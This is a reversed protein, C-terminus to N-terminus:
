AVIRILTWRRDVSFEISIRKGGVATRSPGPRMVDGRMCVCELLQSVSNPIARRIISLYSPHSGGKLAPEASRHM